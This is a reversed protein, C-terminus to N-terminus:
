KPADVKRHQTYRDQTTSPTPTPKNSTPTNCPSEIIAKLNKDEKTYTCQLSESIRRTSMYVHTNANWRVYVHIHQIYM